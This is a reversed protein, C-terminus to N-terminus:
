VRPGRRGGGGASPSAPQTPVHGGPPGLGLAATGASARANRGCPGAALGPGVEGRCPGDETRDGGRRRRSRRMWGLLFHGGRSSDDSGDEASLAPRPRRGGAPSGAAGRRAWGGRGERERGRVGVEARVGGGASRGGRLGRLRGPATRADSQPPVNRVSATPPALPRPGSHLPTRPADRRAPPCTAPGEPLASAGACPTGPRPPRASPLARMTPRSSRPSRPRGGRESFPGKWASRLAAAFSRGRPTPGPGSHGRTDGDRQM